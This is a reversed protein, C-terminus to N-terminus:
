WPNSRARRHGKRPDRSQSPPPPNVVVWSNIFRRYCSDVDTYPREYGPSSLSMSTERSSNFNDLETVDIKPLESPPPDKFCLHHKVKEMVREEAISMINKCHDERPSKKTASSLALFEDDDTEIDSDDDVAIADTVENVVRHESANKVLNGTQKLSTQREHLLGIEPLAAGDVAGVGHPASDFKIIKHQQNIRHEDELPSAPMPKKEIQPVQKKMTSEDPCYWMNERIQVIKNPNSKDSKEGLTILPPTTVECNGSVLSIYPRRRSRILNKDGVQKRCFYPSSSIRDVSPWVSGTPPMRPPPVASPSGPRVIESQLLTFSTPSLLRLQEFSGSRKLASSTARM